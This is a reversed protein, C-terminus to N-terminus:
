LFQTMAFNTLRLHKKYLTGNYQNFYWAISKFNQDVYAFNILPYNSATYLIGSSLPCPIHMESNSEFNGIVLTDTNPHPNIVNM